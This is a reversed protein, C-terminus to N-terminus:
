FISVIKICFHNGFADWVKWLHTPDFPGSGDGTKRFSSAVLMGRYHYRTM